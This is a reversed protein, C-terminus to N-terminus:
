RLMVDAVLDPTCRGSAVRLLDEFNLQEFSVNGEMSKGEIKVTAMKKLSNNTVQMRARKSIDREIWVRFRSVKDIM